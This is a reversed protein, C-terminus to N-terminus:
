GRLRLNAYKKASKALTQDVCDNGSVELEAAPSSNHEQLVDVGGEAVNIARATCDDIVQFLRVYDGDVEVGVRGIPAWCEHSATGGDFEGEGAPLMDEHELKGELKAPSDSGVFGLPLGETSDGDIDGVVGECM